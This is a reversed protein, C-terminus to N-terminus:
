FVEYAVAKLKFDFDAFTKHDGGFEPISQAVSALMPGYGTTTQLGASLSSTAM